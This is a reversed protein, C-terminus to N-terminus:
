ISMETDDYNVTEITQVAPEQSKPTPAPATKGTGQTSSGLPAQKLVTWASQLRSGISQGGQPKTLAEEIQVAVHPKLLEPSREAVLDLMMRARGNTSGFQDLYTQAIKAAHLNITSPRGLKEQILREMVIHAIEHRWQRVNSQKVDSDRPLEHRLPDLFNGEADRDRVFTLGKSWSRLVHVWRKGDDNLRPEGIERTYQEAAEGLSMSHMAIVRLVAEDSSLSSTPISSDPVDDVLPLLAEHAEYSRELKENARLSAVKRDFPRSYAVAMREAWLLSIEGLHRSDTRPYSLKGNEYNRQVSDIIERLPKKLSRCCLSLAEPGTLPKKEHELAQTSRTEIDPHPLADLIGMITDAHVAQTTPIRVIAHWGDELSKTVIHSEPPTDRLSQVLPTVIRGMSMRWPDKPQTLMFGLHRDFLRRAKAASVRDSDLKKRNLEAIEVYEATFGTLHVRDVVQNELCLHAVQSAILEGEIDTDTAILVEDADELMKKLKRIQDPRKAKWAVLNPNNPDLGLRDDPLDYLRGYTALVRDNLFGADKLAMKLSDTKGPAEIVWVRIKKM